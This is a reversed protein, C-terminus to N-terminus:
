KKPKIMIQNSVKDAGVVNAADAEIKQKEEDSRVPGKLTVMGGKTIIKVQHAYFSLTKDGEVARRIKQTTLRDAKGTHQDGATPTQTKNVGSNDPAKGDQAHVATAPLVMSLVGLAATPLFRLQMRKM